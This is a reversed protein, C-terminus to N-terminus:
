DLLHGHFYSYINPQSNYEQDWIAPLDAIGVWQMKGSQTYETHKRIDARFKSIKAPDVLNEQPAFITATYIKNPDLEGAAQKELLDTLGDWGQEYIGVAILDVTPDHVMYEESSAPNWMGSVWYEEEDQHGMTAGGWVINATWTYDYLLGQVPSYYEAFRSESGSVLFGGVTSSLTAGMQDLLYAADAENVSTTHFSTDLEFGMNETIYRFINKGNTSPTGTDHEYAAEIFAWDTQYNYDVGEIKLMAMFDVLGKRHEWFTDTEVTYDVDENHTAITVYITPFVEAPNEDTIENAGVEQGEGMEEFYYGFALAGTVAILFALVLITSLTKNM